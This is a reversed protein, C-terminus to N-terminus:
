GIRTVLLPLRRSGNIADDQCSGDQQRDQDQTRDRDQDAALLRAGGADIVDDQCSGDQLQDRDQTRDQIQDGALAMGAGSLLVALALIISFMRISM